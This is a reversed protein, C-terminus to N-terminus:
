KQDPHPREYDLVLLAEILPDPHLQVGAVRWLYGTGARSTGDAQTPVNVLDGVARRRRTTLTSDTFRGDSLRFRTIYIFNRASQDSVSANLGAPATNVDTHPRM